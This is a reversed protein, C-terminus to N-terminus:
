RLRYGCGHCYNATSANKDGCRKCAVINLAPHGSQHNQSHNAHQQANQDMGHYPHTKAYGSTHHAQHTPNYNTHNHQQNQQNEHYSQQKAANDLQEEIRNRRQSANQQIQEKKRELVQRAKHYETDKEDEMKKFFLKIFGVIIFLIGIFFFLAMSMNPTGDPRPIFKYVYGSLGAMFVGIAIYAVWPIKM